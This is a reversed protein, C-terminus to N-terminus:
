IVVKGWGLLGITMPIIENFIFHISSFCHTITSKCLTSKMNDVFSIYTRIKPLFSFHLAHERHNQGFGAHPLISIVVMPFICGVKSHSVPFIFHSSIFQFTKKKFSCNINFIIFINYKPVHFSVDLSELQDSIVKLCQYSKIGVWPSIFDQILIGSQYQHRWLHEKFANIASDFGYHQILM